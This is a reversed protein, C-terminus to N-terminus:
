TTPTIKILQQEWKTNRFVNWMRNLWMQFCLANQKMSYYQMIADNYESNFPEDSRLNIRSMTPRLQHKVHGSQMRLSLKCLQSCKRQINTQKIRSRSEACTWTSGKLVMSQRWQYRNVAAAESETWSLGLRQLNKIAGRWNTHDGRWVWFKSNDSFYM